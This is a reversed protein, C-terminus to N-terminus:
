PCRCLQATDDREKYIGMVDRDFITRGGQCRESVRAGGSARSSASSSASLQRSRVSATRMSAACRTKEEAAM